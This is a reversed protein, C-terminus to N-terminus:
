NSNALTGAIILGGVIYQADVSPFGDLYGYKIAASALLTEILYYVFLNLFGEFLKM